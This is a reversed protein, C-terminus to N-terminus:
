AAAKNSGYQELIEPKWRLRKLSKSYNCPLSVSYQKINTFKEQHAFLPAASTPQKIEKLNKRTVDRRAPEIFPDKLYAFKEVKSLCNNRNVSSNFSDLFEQYEQIKPLMGSHM